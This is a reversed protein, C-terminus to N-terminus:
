RSVEQGNRRQSSRRRLIGLVFAGLAWALGRKTETAGVGVECSCGGGGTPLGWTGDNGEGGAGGVGSSSSTGSQNGGGAGGAGGGGGAGGQGTFCDGNQCVQGTPCVVGDCPCKGCAGTAPNCCSGDACTPMACQSATCAPPSATYDCYEGTNCTPCDKICTGAKCVEGMGCQKDACSDVCTYTTFDGSPQCTQGPCSTATCPNTVCSGNQCAKDCGQCPVNFCNNPVCTGAQPGYDTCILGNSCTVGDCPNKCGTIGKCVCVPPVVCNADAPTGAPACLISSDANLVTKKACDGCNNAICYQGLPMGTDSSTVEQCTQGPPCPFEGSQCPAACTCANGTNVCSNGMACLPTGNPDQEDSTGDCDNDNCDCTEIQPGQGGICAFQGNLCAYQGEQCTGVTVGCAGGITGAPPPLPNASGDIGDPAVGTEDIMGDCDNDIGDCVEPQPGVGGSCAEGGMGDCQSVGPVCPAASRDGPYLTTDYMPMCPAGIVIGNDINGDCDDDIGNCQEQTPGIDGVCDLIGNQCDITGTTCAGQDTGCVDGETPFMADDVNGNCDNDLGDCAEVQPGNANQCVWGIAGQCALTGRNCPPMLSGNDNCTAGPPPCWQFTGYSCCNGPLTWCGNQNPPPSDTLPADDISGDCDNDIGDCGEPQPQVGGQCVLVGAVCVTSGPVCPAQNVGCPLGTGFVGEDVTGDCDNDIGDCIENSPGVYGQCTGGCPQSGMVCQSTGGYTTSGTTGPPPCPTPAIGDDIQGNCNNDIGDCTEPQPVNSCATFGRGMICAGPQPVNQATQCQISGACNAPTTQGCTINTNQAAGDDAIGNCDNDCGDCTEPSPICGGCVGNDVVGDCDDDQGNCTEAVPCHAPVGCKFIQEDIGNQCNNDINDCIEKPNYCLWQTPDQQQTDTTCPLLALNGQPNAPTISAIYSNLCAQRETANTNPCCTQQMNCYHLYGEDTCGNCNNDKNDCTEPPIAGTIISSLAQALEADNTATLPTTNGGYQAAAVVTTGPTAAGFQIAYTKVKWLTGGITFGDYLLKAANAVSNGAPDNIGTTDCTEGGDTLLIVNVSRCPREVAAGQLPTPYSVMTTPHVWASSLYRYADRMAGNIPTSSALATEKCDSCKNDVWSLMEALNSPAQMGPPNWYDDLQLPVALWASKRTVGTGTGCNAGYLSTETCGAISTLSNPCVAPNNGPGTADDKIDFAPLKMLGFNVQGGFALLTNYMACRAHGIRTDPYDSAYGNAIKCRNAPSMANNMSDSADLVFLFYPRSPAPPNATLCAAPEAALAPQAAMGSGGLWLASLTLFTRRRYLMVEMIVTMSM